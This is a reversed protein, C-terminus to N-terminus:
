LITSVDNYSLNSVIDIYNLRLEQELIGILSDYVREVFMYSGYSDKTLGLQERIEARNEILFEIIINRPHQM